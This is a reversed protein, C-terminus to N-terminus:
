GGDDLAPGYAQLDAPLYQTSAAAARAQSNALSWRAFADLVVGNAPEVSRDGAAARYAGARGIRTSSVLTRLDYSPVVDAAPIVLIVRGTSVLITAQGILDVTSFEDVDLATGDPFLVELRGNQTQLRDGAVVPMGATAPTEIGDRAITAGGDVIALAAPPADQGYARPAIPLMACVCAITLLLDNSTRVASLPTPMAASAAPQSASDM